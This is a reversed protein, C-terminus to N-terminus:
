SNTTPRLGVASWAAITRKAVANGIRRTGIKVDALTAESAAVVVGLPGIADLWAEAIRTSVGHVLCLASVGFHRPDETNGRKVVHIGDAQRQAGTAAAFAADGDEAYQAALTEVLRATGAVDATRFVPIGHIFMLRSVIKEISSATMPPRLMAPSGELIYAVRAGFALLRGRQERYRGDMISAQLDAYTKRELTLAPKEEGSKCGIWIDGVHLAAVDHPIGGGERLCLSAILAGERNDIRVSHNM